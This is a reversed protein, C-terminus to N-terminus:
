HETLYIAARISGRHTSFGARASCQPLRAGFAVLETSLHRLPLPSVQFASV